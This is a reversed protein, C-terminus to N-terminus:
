ADNRGTVSEAIFRGFRARTAAANRGSAIGGRARYGTHSVLSRATRGVRPALVLRNRKLRNGALFPVFPLNPLLSAAESTCVSSGTKAGRAARRTQVEGLDMVKAYRRRRCRRRRRRGRKGGGAEEGGGKGETVRSERRERCEVASM